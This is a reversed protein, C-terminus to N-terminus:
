PTYAKTSIPYKLFVKNLDSADYVLFHQTKGIPKLHKLIYNAYVSFDDKKDKPHLFPEGKVFSRELFIHKVLAPTAQLFNGSADKLEFTTLWDAPLPNRDNFLYYAQPLSPAVVYKGKYKQRLDRLETLKELAQHSGKVLALKPSVSGLDQDLMTFDADRYRSFNGFFLLVGIPISVFFYLRKIRYFGFDDFMLIFFSLALAHVFLVPFPFGKSLGACWAITVLILIPFYDTIRDKHFGTKRSFAFIVAVLAITSATNFGFVPVAALASLFTAIALWKMVSGFDPIRKKSHFSAFALALFGLGIWVLKTGFVNIYSLFGLNVFDSSNGTGSIQYLVNSLNTGSTLVVLALASLCILSITFCAFKKWGFQVAAWLGFVIPIFYFSQKSGASLLCLLAAAAFPWWCKKGFRVMVFFAASAFLIGDITFWPDPYISGSALIFSILMAGWKSIKYRELVFIKDLGDVVFFVQLAFLLYGIIRVVYVQAYEPLLWVIFGHFYASVPPRVSWFDRFAQEGNAVRWSQAPVFGTDWNEFGFRSFFLAYSMVIVFFALRYLKALTM